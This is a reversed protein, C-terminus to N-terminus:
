GIYNKNFSNTLQFAKMVEAATMVAIVEPINSTPGLNFGALGIPSHLNKLSFIGDNRLWKLLRAKKTKSGIMGIYAADNKLLAEKVLLFDLAHDHTLILYASGESSFRIESEPIVSLKCKEKLEFDEFMETRNDILLFNVPLFQLQRAIAKGVHGAGFIYVKPLGSVDSELKRFLEKKLSLNVKQFKLTVSGGCCQGLKPGLSIRTEDELFNKLRLYDRARKVAEFELLGGGITGCQRKESVLMYTDSDRPASGRKSDVKILVIKKENKM